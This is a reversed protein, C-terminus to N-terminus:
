RSAFAEDFYKQLDTTAEGTYGCGNVTGNTATVLYAKGQVFEGPGASSVPTAITVLDASGGKYWHDVTLTVAENTVASATGRFAVPMDKLIDTSFMLCSSSTVGGEASQLALSTKGKGVPDSNGGVVLAGGFGLAVIAAAAAFVVSPKRWRVPPTTPSNPHETDVNMARELLEHARPSTSPDVDLSPPMPDLGALRARLAEDDLNM